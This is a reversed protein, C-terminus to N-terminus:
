ALRARNKGVTLIFIRLGPDIVNALARLVRAVARRLGTM